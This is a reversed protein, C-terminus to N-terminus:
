NFWIKDSKVKVSKLDEVVKSVHEINENSPDRLYKRPHSLVKELTEILIDLDKKFLKFDNDTQNDNM